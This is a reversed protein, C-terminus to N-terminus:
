ASISCDGIPSVQPHLLLKDSDPAAHYKDKRSVRIDFLEGMRNRARLARLDVVAKLRQGADVKIREGWDSELEDVAAYGPDYGFGVGLQGEAWDSKSSFGEIEFILNRGAESITM